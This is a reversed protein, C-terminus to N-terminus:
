HSVITYVINYTYNKPITSSDYYEVYMNNGSGKYSINFNKDIGGTTSTIISQEVESLSKAVYSVNNKTIPKSGPSPAISLSNLPPNKSSNVISNVRIQFGGTSYITLHDTQESQVGKDYDEKTIYNLVVDQQNPNIVLSQIPYLNVNLSVSNQAQINLNFLGFLSVLLIFRTAMYKTKYVYCIYKVIKLVFMVEIM